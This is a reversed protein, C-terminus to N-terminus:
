KDNEISHHTLQAIREFQEQVLNLHAMLESESGKIQELRIGQAAPRSEVIDALVTDIDHALDVIGHELASVTQHDDAMTLLGLVAQKTNALGDHVSNVWAGQALQLETLQQFYTEYLEFRQEIQERVQLFNQKSGKVELQVQSEFLEQDAQDSQNSQLTAILEGSLQQLKTIKHHGKGCQHLFTNMGELFGAVHSRVAELKQSFSLYSSNENLIRIPANWVDNSMLSLSAELVKLENTAVQPVFEVLYGYPESSGIRQSHVVFTQGGILVPSLSSASLLAESVVEGELRDLHADVELVEALASSELVWLESAGESMVAIERYQNLLFKISVSASLASQRLEIDHKIAKNDHVISSLVSDLYRSFDGYEDNRAGHIASLPQDSLRRDLQYHFFRLASKRDKLVRSWGWVLYLFLALWGISLLPFLSNQFVTFRELESRISSLLQSIQGLRSIALQKHEDPNYTSANPVDPVSADHQLLGQVGAKLAREAELLDTVLYTGEQAVLEWRYSLEMTTTTLTHTQQLREMQSAYQQSVSYYMVSLLGILAVTFVLAYQVIWDSFRNRSQNFEDYASKQTDLM